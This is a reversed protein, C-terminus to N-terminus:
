GDVGGLGQGRGVQVEAAVDPRALAAFARPLFQHGTGGNEPSIRIRYYSNRDGNSNILLEAFEVGSRPSAPRPM